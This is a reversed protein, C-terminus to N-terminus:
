ASEAIEFLTRQKRLPIPQPRRHKQRRGAPESRRWLTKSCYQCVSRDRLNLFKRTRMCDSCYRNVLRRM